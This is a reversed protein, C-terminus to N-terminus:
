HFPEFPAKTQPAQDDGPGMGQATITYVELPYEVSNNLIDLDYGKMTMGIEESFPQYYANRLNLVLRCGLIAAFASSAQIPFFTLGTQLFTPILINTDSITQLTRSSRRAEPPTTLWVVIVILSSVTGIFPFLISDRILVRFLVGQRSWTRFTEFYNGPPANTRLGFVEKQSEKLFRLGEWVTFAVVVIDYGILIFWTATSWSPWNGPLCTRLTPTLVISSKTIPFGFSLVLPVIVGALMLISLAFLLATRARRRHKYMSLMRHMMLRTAHSYTSNLITKGELSLLLRAKKFQTYDSIWIQVALGQLFFGNAAYRTIIYLVQVMSVKKKWILEVELDFTTIHDWFTVTATAVVFWHGKQVFWAFQLADEASM